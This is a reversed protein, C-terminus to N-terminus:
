TFVGRKDDILTWFDSYGPVFSLVGDYLKFLPYEDRPNHFVSGEQFAIIHDYANEGLPFSWGLNYRNFASHGGALHWAANRVANSALEYSHAANTVVSELKFGREIDADTVTAVNAPRLSFAGRNKISGHLYFVTLVAPLIVKALIPLKVWFRFFRGSMSLLIKGFAIAVLAAVLAAGIKAM